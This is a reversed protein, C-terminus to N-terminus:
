RTFRKVDRRAQERVANDEFQCGLGKLAKMDKVTGRIIQEQELSVELFEATQEHTDAAAHGSTL